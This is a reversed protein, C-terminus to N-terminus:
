NLKRRHKLQHRRTHIVKSVTEDALEDMLDGYARHDDETLDDDNLVAGRNLLVIAACTSALQKLSEETEVGNVTGVAAMRMAYESAARLMLLRVKEPADRLKM